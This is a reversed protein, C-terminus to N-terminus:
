RFLRLPLFELGRAVRFFSGSSLSVQVSRTGFAIDLGTISSGARNSGVRLGFGAGLRADRRAITEGGDWAAAADAFVVGGLRLVLIRVDSFLREEVNLYLVREGVLHRAEYGRLRDDGGLNFRLYRPEGHLVAGGARWALTQVGSTRWFGFAEAALRGSVVRGRDLFGHQRVQMGVLAGSGLFAAWAADARVLVRDTGAGLARLDAGAGCQVTWGSALDEDAGFLDLDRRQHYTRALRAWAVGLAAVDDELDGRLRRRSAFLAWRDLRPGRRHRALFTEGREEQVELREVEDGAEFRRRTGNSSEVQLVATWRVAESYFPLVVALGQDRGLEDRRAVASLDWRSGLFRPDRWEVAAEDVDSSSVVRGGLQVARGLFNSDYLGLGLRTIGGQSGVETRLETTWRDSTRLVLAVGDPLREPVLRVEQFIGLARLNRESEEARLPDFSDGVDLLLERRVVHARTRVHLANAWAFLRHDEGPRVPDFIEMPEVRVVAVPLGRLAEWEPRTAGAPSAALVAVLWAFGRQLRM